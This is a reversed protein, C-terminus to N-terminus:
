ILSLNKRSTIMHKSIEAILSGPISHNKSEEFWLNMSESVDEVIGTVQKKTISFVKAVELLNELTILKGGTGIAMSHWGNIGRNYTIDYAPSNHWKGDASMIFSFNKTHDDRNGTMVNFVMRRYLQTVEDHSGTLKYCVKLLTEYDCDAVRFNANILGALTHMHIRRNNGVRDFRKTLFYFNDSNDSQILKTEPFTIGAHRAMLSYIYEIPGEAKNDPNKGAPFKAMWHEYGEPADHAGSISKSGSLAILSKPRAGGPSISSDAVEDLVGDVEGTYIKISEKALSDISVEGKPSSIFEAGEDPQYSLAGMARDGIFALRDVPNIDAINIHHQKLTRDMILMGWGDPLSDAFLGHLGNFPTTKSEQLEPIQKLAFPSLNLGLDLFDSDYQFHATNVTYTIEGALMPKYKLGKRELGHYYVSIIKV